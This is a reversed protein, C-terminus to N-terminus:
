PSELAHMFEVPSYITHHANRYWHITDTLCEARSMDGHHTFEHITLCIPGHSTSCAWNEGGVGYGFMRGQLDRACDYDCESGGSLGLRVVLTRSSHWCGMRLNATTVVALKLKLEPWEGALM